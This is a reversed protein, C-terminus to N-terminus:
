LIVPEALTGGVRVTARGDASVRIDAEKLAPRVVPEATLQIQLDVTSAAINPGRGISGKVTASFLPSQIRLSQIRFLFSDGLKLAATLQDFPVAAPLGPLSLTGDTAELRVIGDPGVPSSHLDVRGELTGSFAAGPWLSAVPLQALDVEQLRGQWDLPEALTFIGEAVGGPIEVRTHVAPELRLWSLSWAPRLRAREISWKTGDPATILVGIIEVGPGALQLHPGLAQVTVRAGTSRSLSRALSESVRHYPFGRYIFVLTLLVCGLAIVLIRASRSLSLATRRARSGIL